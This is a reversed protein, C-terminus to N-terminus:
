EEKMEFTTKDKEVRIQYKEPTHNFQIGNIKMGVNSMSKQENLHKRLDLATKTTWYAPYFAISILVVVNFGILGPMFFMIWEKFTIM